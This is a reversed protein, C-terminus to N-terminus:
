SYLLVLAGDGKFTGQTLAAREAVNDVFLILGWRGIENQRQHATAEVAFLEFHM